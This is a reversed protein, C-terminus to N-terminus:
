SHSIITDYDTSDRLNTARVKNLFTKRLNAYLPYQILIYRPTQSGERYYYQDSKVAKIKFLFHNLVIRISRM